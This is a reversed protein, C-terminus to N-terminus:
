VSRFMILNGYWFNCRFIKFCYRFLITIVYFSLSNQWLFLILHISFTELYKSTWVMFSSGLNNIHLSLKINDCPTSINSLPSVDMKKLPIPFLNHRLFFIRRLYQNFWRFHKLLMCSGRFIVNLVTSPNFSYNLKIYLMLIGIAIVYLHCWILNEKFSLLWSQTLM